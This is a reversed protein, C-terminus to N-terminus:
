EDDDMKEFSPHSGFQGHDRFNHWGKSGDPEKVIIHNEPYPITKIKHKKKASIAKNNILNSHSDTIHISLIDKRVKWNCYPCLVIDNDKINKVKREKKGKKDEKVIKPKNPSKLCATIHISLYLDKRIKANCYPCVVFEEGNIFYKGNIIQYSIKLM